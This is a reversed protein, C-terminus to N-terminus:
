RVSLGLGSYIEKQLRRMEEMMRESVSTEGETVAFLELKQFQHLRYLGRTDAGRAGAEARFAKGIGIYKLPLTTVPVIKNTSLAALPIEATASLVLNAHPSPPTTTSSDTSKADESSTARPPTTTLYYTQGADDRPQFGCRAMVDEKIVDPTAVPNWGHQVAIRLAYQVLAQELLALSGKLFPWSTGTATASASPDVLGWQVAVDLHDRKKDAPIPEPGFRELEVAESEKGVPTDPHTDNPLLLSLLELETNTAEAIEQYQAIKSKLKKAQEKAEEGGGARILHGISKQKTRM